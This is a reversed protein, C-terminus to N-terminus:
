APDSLIEPTEARPEAPPSAAARHAMERAHRALFLEGAQTELEADVAARWEAYRRARLNELLKHRRRAEQVVAAQAHIRQECAALAGEIRTAERRSFRRFADLAALDASDIGPAAFIAQEERRRATEVTALAKAHAAREQRLRDLLTEEARAQEARWRLVAELPFRFRTM